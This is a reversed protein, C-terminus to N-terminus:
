GYWSDLVQKEQEVLIWFLLCDRRVQHTSAYALAKERRMAAVQRNLLKAEVQEKSKLSDDWKEGIQQL